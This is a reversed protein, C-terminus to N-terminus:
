LAVALDIRSRSSATYPVPTLTRYTFYHAGGDVVYSGGDIDPSGAPQHVPTGSGNSWALPDGFTSAAKLYMTLTNVSFMLHARGNVWLASGLRFEAGGSIDFLPQGANVSPPKTWTVWDSSTACGIAYQQDTLDTIKRTGRYYWVLEGNVRVVNGGYDRLFRGYDVAYSDFTGAAGVGLMPYRLDPAFYNWNIGDRSRVLVTTQFHGGCRMIHPSAYFFGTEPDWVVDGTSFHHRDAEPFTGRQNDYVKLPPPTARSHRCQVNTETTFSQFNCFGQGGSAADWPAFPGLPSSGIYLRAIPADHTWWWLYWPALAGAELAKTDVRMLTTWWIQEKDRETSRPFYQNREVLTNVRSWALKPEDELVIAQARRQPWVAVGAAAAAGARLAMRRTMGSALM